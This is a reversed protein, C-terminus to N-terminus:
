QFLQILKTIRFSASHPVGSHGGTACKYLDEGDMNATNTLKGTKYNTVHQSSHSYGHM